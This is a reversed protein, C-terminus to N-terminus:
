GELLLREPPFASWGQALRPRFGLAEAAAGFETVDAVSLTRGISYPRERGTAALVLPEILCAFVQSPGYGSLVHYLWGWFGRQWGVPLAVAEGALQVVSAHPRGVVTGPIAVDIVVSGPTLAAAPLVGGTPGCGVVVRCGQVVQEPGDCAEADVAKAARPHDVRVHVGDEALAQAVALGIPSRSGIIAVRREQRRALVTRVNALLAWATAAGGNTVPVDLRSALAEGRGGVVACLSGLGVAHVPGALAVAEAMHDVARQQDSLLDIPTMPVGVVAGSIQEGLQLQCVPLVDDIATGDRWQGMLGLRM